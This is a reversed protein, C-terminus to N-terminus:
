GANPQPFETEFVLEPVIVEWKDCQLRGQFEAGSDERKRLIIAIVRGRIFRCNAPPTFKKALKGVIQGESDHLEWHKGNHKLFISDDTKINSIYRHISNKEKHAGAFSIDVNQLELNIFKLFLDPTPDPIQIAQRRLIDNCVPLNALIPNEKKHQALLLTNKARTMAVYYLRRPSDKDENDGLKDWAGDLVAVHDFELGKARHATLLMLGTQKKRSERGWEVLWDIFHATPLEAGKTENLYTEVAEILVKWWVGQEQHNLWELIKAADILKYHQHNIWEILAQTERLRWFGCHEIKAVQVPIGHMECYARIPDLYKWERAIVATKSWCWNQSLRALRQFETMIALAQNVGVDNVPLVQVKGLSVKDHLAYEGGLPNNARARDIKIPNDVKMRNSTNSVVLNAANIIHATSRYNDTLFIPKALYDAEFRHIYEVSAGQFAYINQDDDGVAFLSLKGEEETQTRGALAAILEYQYQNIDQYEDVLIWRFGALLRQRRDDAEETILDDGKLLATAEQLVKAFANEEVNNNDAFSAGVLRMALAHCTMVTIGNADEGILNALRQRIEVAAHRNYTLAIIGHPNERKVRVLYAIRHVLVKTKGSGPGALVLVNMQERDDAVIKQQIPNHLVEVIARWSEPSTQRSLEKERGPLWKRLFAEQDLSFYEMALKIADAMQELGRQVYEAMVHIQIVQEDYHMKLPEFDSKAFGRKEQGLRITMAPRFVALGKNLRIVEQEHLWMLARDLLKSPEKMESKLLLDSELVTLLQGLTTSALLDTGKSGAALCTHLHNLIQAAAARRLSAVKDLKSWERHLTVLIIESDLRKTSLSGVSGEENRGDMSLGQLTRSVKEPLVNILGNNKLHQCVQRLYLPSSDGKNMDPALVRLEAILAQELEAAEELRSKSSHEVGVHIFATLSTDNSAIGLKELDYLAARIKESNLGAINMLEDTSVGEDPNASMLASILSVLQRRYDSSISQKALKKEAEEITAVKLSSPFIQVQNEERTLLYAEELWAIATRVRTDDTASDRDFAGDIEESLIEGSTAVVEGNFRKKRDLNKLSRLISQIERQTLRSRASMGFQREIDEPTYLLICRALSRDRGARGAEQLYNELSGPIDAHIVLRVDPKDIGMGFANTAGIVSLDGRIFSEQVNKKSEPQLAAHFHAATLGKERLFNAVEETQKRTACYVIAGDKTGTPLNAMIIQHIHAYKEATTTQVVYFELNTRKAGGDFLKLSVGVKDQFHDLMDKVVDPKATATLCLIPPIAGQGAKEKIFRSVYRYDPRFDHGWKSICHAEDLVWAGIERQSLVKRLSKNRLQEPSVILIGIDGLRIKDLVDAREPMSLLGNIAACCKIERAALGAVQDSMLAVLPSIVVTLAGTKEYRSLAPIQYCLSKGTGTPLIALVHEGAMAAEVISQQLPRGDVGIPEPRFADFGFWRKLKKDANHRESCWTCAPDKCATDRLLKVLEGAEPFQHRVWPPMVSNGGSVSLWALAYAFAWHHEIRKSIITKGHTQCANGELLREISAIAEDALPHPKRRVTMFLANFGTASKESGILWHWALVLDPSVENTKRLSDLQERFLDLTIRADLEPDNLKQVQLQGDQYHKVLHHYPNRPFALPNLQLTDVAPKSLLRLDPKITALHPLDFAIINHGLLFSLQDAISDLKDLAELLNGKSFSFSEANDGRVASFQHIKHDHIGVELDLSLCRPQFDAKGNKNNDTSNM